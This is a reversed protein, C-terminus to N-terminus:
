ASVCRGLACVMGNSFVGRVGAGNDAQVSSLDEPAPDPQRASKSVGSGADPPAFKMFPRPSVDAAGPSQFLRQPGLKGRHAVRLNRAASRGSGTWMRSLGHRGFTAFHSLSAVRPGATPHALRRTNSENFHPCHVTSQSTEQSQGAL